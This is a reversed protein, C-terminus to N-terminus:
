RAGSRGETGESVSDQLFNQTPLRPVETGGTKGGLPSPLGDFPGGEGGIYTGPKLGARGIKGPLAGENVTAIPGGGDGAQMGAPAAPQKRRETKSRRGRRPPIQKEGSNTARNQPV